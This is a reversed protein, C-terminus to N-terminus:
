GNQCEVTGGGPGTPVRVPGIAASHDCLQVPLVAKNVDGPQQGAMSGNRCSHAAPQGGFPKVACVQIPVISLNHDAGPTGNVDSNRCGAASAPSGLPTGGLDTDCVQMPILNVNGTGSPHAAEAGFASGSGLLSVAAAAAAGAVFLIRRM